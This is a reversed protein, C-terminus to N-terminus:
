LETVLLARREVNLTNRSTKYFSPRHINRYSRFRNYGYREYVTDQIPCYPLTRNICLNSLLGLTEGRVRVSAEKAYLITKERFLHKKGENLTVLENKLM